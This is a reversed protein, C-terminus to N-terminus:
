HLGTAWYAKSFNFSASVKGELVLVGLKERGKIMSNSAKAVLIRTTRICFWWGMANM